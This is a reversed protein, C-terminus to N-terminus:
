YLVIVVEDMKLILKVQIRLNEKSKKSMAYSGQSKTYMSISDLIKTYAVFLEFIHLFLIAMHVHLNQRGPSM